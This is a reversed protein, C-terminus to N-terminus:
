GNADGEAENGVIELFEDETLWGKAVASMLGARNIRGDDYLRKLRDFM